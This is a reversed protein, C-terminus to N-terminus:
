IEVAIDNVSILTWYEVSRRRDHTENRRSTKRLDFPIVNEIRSDDMHHHLILNRCRRVLKACLPFFLYEGHYRLMIQLFVKVSM